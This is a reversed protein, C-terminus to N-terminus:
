STSHLSQLCNLNVFRRLNDAGPLELVFQSNLPKGLRSAGWLELNNEHALAAHVATAKADRNLQQLPHTEQLATGGAALFLSEIAAICQRVAGSRYACGLNREVLPMQQGADARDRVLAAGRDLMLEASGTQMMVEGLLRHAQASDIQKHISFPLNRNEIHNIFVETATYAAGLAPGTINLCLMPLVEAMSLEPGGYGAPQFVRILGAADLEDITQQSLRRIKEAEGARERLAPALAAIRDHYEAISTRDTM